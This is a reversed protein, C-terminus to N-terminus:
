PEQILRDSLEDPNDGSGAPSVQALLAGCKTIAECIADTAQRTRNGDLIGSVLSDWTRPPVRDNICKDALEGLVPRYRQPASM